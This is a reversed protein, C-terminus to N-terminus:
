QGAFTNYLERATRAHGSVRLLEKLREEEDEARVGRLIHFLDGATAGAAGTKGIMYDLTNEPAPIYKNVGEDGSTRANLLYPRGATGHPLLSEEGVQTLDQPGVDGGMIKGIMTPKGRLKRVADEAPIGVLLAGTVYRTLPAFNGQKAPALVKNLMFDTQFALPRQFTYMVRGWPTMSWAPSGLMSTRKQLNQVADYMYNRRGQEYAAKDALNNVDVGAKQLQSIADAQVAPTSRLDGWARAALPVDKGQAAAVLEDYHHSAANATIQAKLNDLMRVLTNAINSVKRAANVIPGSSESHVMDEVANRMAAGSEIFAKTGEPSLGVKQQLTDIVGKVTNGYGLQSLDNAFLHLHRLPAFVPKLAAQTYSLTDAVRAQVSDDLQGGGMAKSAYQKVLNGDGGEEAVRQAYKGIEADVAKIDPVGFANATEIMRNAGIIYQRMAKGVDAGEPGTSGATRQRTIPGFESGAQKVLERVRPPMDAPKEGFHMLHDQMPSFKDGFTKSARAGIEIDIDHYLKAADAVAQNGNAAATLKAPDDYGEPTWNEVLDRTLNWQDNSFGKTAAEVANLAPSSAQAANRDATKMKGALEEGAPGQRAVADVIQPFVRNYLDSGFGGKKPVPGTPEQPQIPEGPGRAPPEPEARGILAEDEPTAPAAVSTPGKEEHTVSDLFQEWQTKWDTPAPQAGTKTSLASSRDPTESQAYKKRFAEVIDGDSRQLDNISVFKKAAGKGFSWGALDGKNAENAKADAIDGRDYLEDRWSGHENLYDPSTRVRGSDDIVAARADDWGRPLEVDQSAQASGAVSDQGWAQNGGSGLQEAAVPLTGEPPVGGAPSGAGNSDIPKSPQLPGKTADLKQVEELPIPVVTGDPNVYAAKGSLVHGEQEESLASTQSAAEAHNRARTDIDNQLSDRVQQQWTGTRPQAQSQAQAARDVLDQVEPSVSPTQTEVPTTPAEPPPPINSTPKGKGIGRAMLSLTALNGAADEGAGLREEKTPPRNEGFYAQSPALVRGLVPLNSLSPPPTATGSPQTVMRRLDPGAPGFMAKDSFDSLNEALSKDPDYVQKLLGKGIAGASEGWGPQNPDPANSPQFPTVPGAASVSAKADAFPSPQQSAHGLIRQRMEEESMGDPFTYSSGNYWVTTM